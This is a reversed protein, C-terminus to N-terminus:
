RAARRGARRSAASRALEVLRRQDLQHDAAPELLVERRVVARAGPSPAGARRRPQRARALEVVDDNARARRRPRRGRRGPRRRASPPPALRDEAEIRSAVPPTSTARAAAAPRSARARRHASPMPRTGSSRLRWPSTGRCSPARSRQRQRQQRPERAPTPEARPASRARRRLACKSRSAHRRRAEVRRSPRRQRAAVLLLDDEGLPQGRAAASRIRSSGVRPTSTPALASIWASM